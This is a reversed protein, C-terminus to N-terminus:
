KTESQEKIINNWIISTLVDGLYNKFEENQELFLSGNSDVVDFSFDLYAEGEDEKLSVNGFRVSVGPFDGTIFKVAAEPEEESYVFEYDIDEKLQYNAERM